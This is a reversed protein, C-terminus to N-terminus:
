KENLLTTYKTQLTAINSMYLTCGDCGTEDSVVVSARISELKMLTTEYKFKSEKRARAALRLLKGQNALAANLEEVEVTLDDAFHSVESASGSNIDQGDGGVADDGLAMTCLGRTTDIIFCLRNLKDEVRRETEDDSL